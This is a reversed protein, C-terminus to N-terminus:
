AGRRFLWNEAFFLSVCHSIYKFCLYFGVVAIVAENPEAFLYFHSRAPSQTVTICSLIYQIGQM